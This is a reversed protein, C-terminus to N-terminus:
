LSIFSGRLVPLERRRNLPPSLSLSLCNSKIRTENTCVYNTSVIDLLVDKESELNIIETNKNKCLCNIIANNFTGFPYVSLRQPITSITKLKMITSSQITNGIHEKM